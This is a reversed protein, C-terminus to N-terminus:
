RVQIFSPEKPTKPLVDTRVMETANARVSPDADKHEVYLFGDDEPHAAKDEVNEIVLIEYSTVIMTWFSVDPPAKTWAAKWACICYIGLMVAEVMGYYFPVSVAEALEDGDFMSLAVSTAIGVNQYCCEISVTVREPKLLGFSTSMLNAILLGLLCPLAVGVFFRWDRDWIRSDEDSNSMFASFLVLAVGAFNGLRNAHLNFNHSHFHASAGLGSGIAVIVIVLAVALSEWDLSSVVDDNYSYRAYVFLNLPLMVTSLLTSIATMTVSLALDANFMSCWWNSYSGGPSSTVVLLTVGTPYDLNLARVVAFGAFPLVVFQLFLGTLIARRNKLQARLAFIDVTASMGFVLCFLLVSSTVEIFTDLDFGM